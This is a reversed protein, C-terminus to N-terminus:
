ITIVKSGALMAEVTDRMTTPEGVVLRDEREYFELCTKCSLVTSGEGVFNDLHEKVSTGETTLMVGRNLAFIKEPIKGTEFLVRLFNSMLKGGLETDGQGMSDTNLILILGKTAAM